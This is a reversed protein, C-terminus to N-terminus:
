ERRKFEEIGEYGVGFKENYVLEKSDYRLSPKKPTDDAYGFPVVGTIFYRNPCGIMKSIRHGDFGEMINTSLGHAQCSLVFLEMPFISQKISWERNTYYEPAIQKKSAQKLLVRHMWATFGGKGITMKMGKLMGALAKDNLEKGERKSLGKYEEVM